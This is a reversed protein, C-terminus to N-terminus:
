LDLIAQIEYRGRLLYFFKTYIKGTAQIQPSNYQCRALKQEYLLRFISNKM